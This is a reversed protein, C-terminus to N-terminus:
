PEVTLVGIRTSLAPDGSLEGWQRIGDITDIAVHIEWESPARIDPPV